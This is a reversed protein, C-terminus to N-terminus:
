KEEKEEVGGAGKEGREKVLAEFYGRILARYEGSYGEKLARLMAEHLPDTGEGLGEPLASPGAYRADKGVESEREESLGQQRISRTADLMRSLSQRQRDVTRRSVRDKMDQLVRDMEEGIKDVRGLMGGQGQMGQELQQLAQRIAEQEAAMQSLMGDPDPLMGQGGGLMQETGQNVKSQRDALSRMKEIMEDLGSASASAELDAMAKRMLIAAQNLAGMAERAQGAAGAGNREELRAIASQMRSLSAGLAQRLEPTVFFTKKGAQLVRDTVRATGAMLNQQAEAVGGFDMAARGAESAAQTVAEQQRSLALAERLSRELDATVEAKSQQAFSRQSKRLSQAMQSLSQSLREGETRTGKREGGRVAESMAGMREPLREQGVGKELASLSDAAEPHAERLGEALEKMGDRVGETEQKVGMERNALDAAPQRAELGENVRAQARALEEARKALADFAQEQRVRKLLAIARDLRKQFEEQNQILNQLAAAVRKPDSSRAAEQLRKMAERFEQSVVESILKRIEEVKRLVEVNVAGHQALKEAMQGVQESLKKLREGLEGQKALAAELDKKKEWSLDGGQETGKKLLERRVEELRAQVRRGEEAMEKMSAIGEQQKRDAEQAIDALSPLKVVFTPTEASKPGSVRDNDYVRVRYRLRDDPLLNMGSLDWLHQVSVDGGPGFALATRREEREDNMAYLLEMRSLGFDDKAEIQLPVAMEEGVEADRGPFALRVTPAEDPIATVRYAMVDASPTGESDLLRIAYRRDETVTLEARARRGDGSSVPASLRRGDDLAMEASRLPKNALIEMEVRTGRVAAIDGGEEEVRVGLGPYEPYHYTMRLRLVTPRDLARLHFAPSEGDGARVRYAFSRKVEQFRYTGQGGAVTFPAKEWVEAGEERFLVEGSAPVRGSVQATVAFDEGKLVTADGPLVAVQTASPQAFFTGPHTLRGAAGRMGGPLTTLCLAAGTALLWRAGRRYPERDVAAGFDLRESVHGAQEVMAEILEESYGEPRARRDPWLQVVGVLRQRLDPHRAEVDLAAREIPRRRVMARLCLWVGGWAVGCLWIGWMTWKVPPPLYLAAELVLGVVALGAGFALTLAAGTLAEVRRQTRRLRELRAILDAYTQSTSNM